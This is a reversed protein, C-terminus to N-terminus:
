LTRFGLVIVIQCFVLCGSIALPRVASPFIHFLPFLLAGPAATASTFHLLPEVECINCSEGDVWGPAPAPLLTSFPTHGSV